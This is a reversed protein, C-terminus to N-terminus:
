RPASAAGLRASGGLAPLLPPPVARSPKARSRGPGGRGRYPAAPLHGQQAKYGPRHATGGGRTVRLRHMKLKNAKKQTTTSAFLQYLYKKPPPPIVSPFSSHIFGLSFLASPPHSPARGAWCIQSIRCGEEPLAGAPQQMKCAALTGMEAAAKADWCSQSGLAKSRISMKFTLNRRPGKALASRGHGRECGSCHKNQSAASRGFHIQPGLRTAWILLKSM